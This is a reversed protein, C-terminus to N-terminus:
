EREVFLEMEWGFWKRVRHGIARLLLPSIVPDPHPRHVDIAGGSLKLDTFKYISGGKPVVSCGADVMAAVFDMWRVDGDASGSDGLMGAILQKTPAKVPM